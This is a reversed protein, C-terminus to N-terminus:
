AGPPLAQLAGDLASDRNYIDPAFYLRGDAGVWTTWYLIHINVPEVLQVTLPAFNDGGLAARM